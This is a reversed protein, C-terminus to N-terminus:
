LCNKVAEFLMEGIITYGKQTFHIKDAAALKKVVWTNISYNGGMVQHLNWYALHHDNVYQVIVSVVYLLDPLVEYIGTRKNKKLADPPTTLLLASAPSLTKIKNVLHHVKNYFQTRSSGSFADNTGLSIVVLDPKDQILQKDLEALEAYDSYKTGTKCFSQGNFFINRSYPEGYYANM